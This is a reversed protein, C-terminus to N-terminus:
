NAPTNGDIEEMIQKEIIEIHKRKEEKIALDFKGLCEGCRWQNSPNLGMVLNTNCLGCLNRIQNDMM